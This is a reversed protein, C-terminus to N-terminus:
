ADVHTDVNAAIWRRAHEVSPFKEAVTYMHGQGAGYGAAPWSITTRARVEYTGNYEEGRMNLPGVIELAVVHDLNVFTGDPTTLFRRM